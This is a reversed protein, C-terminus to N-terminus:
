RQCFRPTRSRLPNQRGLGPKTRARSWHRNAIEIALNTSRIEARMQMTDSQPRPLEGLCAPQLTEAWNPRQNSGRILDKVAPHESDPGSNPGSMKM